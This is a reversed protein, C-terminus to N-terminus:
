GRVILVGIIRDIIFYLIVHKLTGSFNFFKCDGFKLNIVMFHKSDYVVKSHFIILM